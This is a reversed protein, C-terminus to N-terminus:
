TGELFAQAQAADPWHCEGKQDVVTEWKFYGPIRGAVPTERAWYWLKAERMDTPFPDDAKSYDNVWMYFRPAKDGATAQALTDTATPIWARLAAYSKEACEIAQATATALAATGEFVEGEHPYFGWLIEEPYKAPTSGRHPWYEAGALVFGGHEFPGMDGHAVPRSGPGEPVLSAYDVRAVTGDTAVTIVETTTLDFAIRVADLKTTRLPADVGSPLMRALGSPQLVLLAGIDDVTLDLVNLGDKVSVVTGDALSIKTIGRPTGVFLSGGIRVLARAGKLSADTVLPVLADSEARHISGAIGDLVFATPGYGAALDTGVVDGLSLTQSGQLLADPTLTWAHTQSLAVAIAHEGCAELPMPTADHLNLTAAAVDTCAAPASKVSPSQVETPTDTRTSCSALVVTALVFRRM